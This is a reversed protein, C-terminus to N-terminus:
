DPKSANLCATEFNRDDVLGQLLHGMHDHAFDQLQSAGSMVRNLAGLGCNYAFSVLALKDIPTFTIDIGKSKALSNPLADIYAYIPQLDQRLQAQAQSLTEVEGPKVDAGTHGVGITEVGGSDKYASLRVGERLILFSECLNMEAKTM